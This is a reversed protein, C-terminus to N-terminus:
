YISIAAYLYCIVHIQIYIYYIYYIVYCVYIYVTYKYIYIGISEGVAWSSWISALRNFGGSTHRDVQRWSNWTQFALSSLGPSLSSRPHHSPWRCSSSFRVSGWGFWTRKNSKPSLSLRPLHLEACSICHWDLALIVARKGLIWSSFVNTHGFCTTLYSHRALKIAHCKVNVSNRWFGDEIVVGVNICGRM